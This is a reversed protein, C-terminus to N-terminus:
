GFQAATMSLDPVIETRDVEISPVMVYTCCLGRPRIMITCNLEKHSKRIHAFWEVIGLLNRLKRFDIGFNGTIQSRIRSCIMSAWNGVPQFVWSQNLAGILPQLTIKPSPSNGLVWCRHYCDAYRLTPRPLAPSAPAIMPAFAKCTRQDADDRSTLLYTAWLVGHEAAKVEFASGTTPNLSVVERGQM